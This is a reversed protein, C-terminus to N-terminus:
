CIKLLNLKNDRGSKAIIKIITLTQYTDINLNPKIRIYGWNTKGTCYFELFSDMLYFQLLSKSCAFLINKKNLTCKCGTKSYGVERQFSKLSFSNVFFEFSCEQSQINVILVLPFHKVIYNNIMRSFLHQFYQRSTFFSERQM